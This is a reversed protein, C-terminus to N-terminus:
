SPFVAHKRDLWVLHFVSGAFVGHMRAKNRKHVRIEFMRLGPDVSPPRAFRQAGPANRHPVCLLRDNRVMAASMNRLKAIAGAFHRLDAPSWESFCEAEQRYHKLSVSVGEAGAGANRGDLNVVPPTASVGAFRNPSSGPRASRKAM